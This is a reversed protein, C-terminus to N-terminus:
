AAVATGDMAAAAPTATLVTYRAYSLLAPSSRATQSARRPPSSSAVGTRSRLHIRSRV